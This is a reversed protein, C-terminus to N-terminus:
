LIPPLLRELCAYLLSNAVSVHSPGVSDSACWYPNMGDCHVSVDGM